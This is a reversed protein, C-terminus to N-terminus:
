CGPEFELRCHIFVQYKHSSVSAVSTTVVLSASGAGLGVFALMAVSLGARIQKCHICPGQFALKKPFAKFSVKNHRQMIKLQIYMGLNMLNSHIIQM